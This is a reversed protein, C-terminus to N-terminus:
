PAGQIEPCQHAWAARVLDDATPGLASYWTIWGCRHCHVKVLDINECVRLHEPIQPLIERIPWM